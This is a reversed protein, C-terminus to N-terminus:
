LLPITTDMPAAVSVLLAVVSRESLACRKTVVPLIQRTRHRIWESVGHIAGRQSEGGPFVQFGEGGTRSSFNQALQSLGVM